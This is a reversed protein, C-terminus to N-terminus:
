DRIEHTIPDYYIAYEKKTRTHCSVCRDNRYNAEMDFEDMLDHHSETKDKNHDHCSICEIQRRYAERTTPSTHCKKCALKGHMTDRLELSTEHGIAVLTSPWGAPHFQHCSNCQEMSLHVAKEVAHCTDCRRKYKWINLRLEGALGRGHGFFGM